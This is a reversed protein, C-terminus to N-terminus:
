FILTQWLRVVGTPGYQGANSIQEWTLAETHGDLFSFPLRNLHTNAYTGTMNYGYARWGSGVAVCGYNMTTKEGGNSMHGFVGVADSSAQRGLHRTRASAGASLWNADTVNDSGWGADASDHWGYEVAGYNTYIRLYGPTGAMISTAAAPFEGEAQSREAPCFFISRRTEGNYPIGRLYAFWRGNVDGTLGKGKVVALQVYEAIAVYYLFEHVVAFTGELASGLAHVAPPNSDNDDVYLLVAKTLSGMNTACTQRRVQDRAKSLAPLLMAALIAIISVVVLLEILTFGRGPGRRM